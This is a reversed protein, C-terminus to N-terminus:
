YASCVREVELQPYYSQLWSISLLFFFFLDFYNQYQCTKRRTKEESMSYRSQLAIHRVPYVSIVSNNIGPMRLGYCSCHHPRISPFAFGFLSLSLRRAVLARLNFPCRFLLFYWRSLPYRAFSLCFCDVICKILRTRSLPVAWICRAFTYCDM